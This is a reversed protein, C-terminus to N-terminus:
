GLKRKLNRRHAEVTRISINLRHAIEKSRLGEDIMRLVEKERITLSRLRDDEFDREGFLKQKVIDAFYSGGMAVVQVAKQMEEFDASKLLYGDAGAAAVTRIYDQSDHTSLVLIKQEPNTAKIKQTAEVGNLVPMSIDMLILDFDVSQALNVAQQGDSAEAVINVDMKKLRMQLAERVLEHDDAIIANITM